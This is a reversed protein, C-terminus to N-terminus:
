GGGRARASKKVLCIFWGCGGLINAALAARERIALYTLEKSEAAVNM